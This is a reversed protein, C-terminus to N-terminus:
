TNVSIKKVASVSRMRETCAHQESNIKGKKLLNAIARPARKIWSVLTKEAPADPPLAEVPVIDPDNRIINHIQEVVPLPNAMNQRIVNVIIPIKQAPTASAIAAALQALMNMQKGQAVEDESPDRRKTRPPDLLVKKRTPLYKDRINKKLTAHSTMTQETVPTKNGDRTVIVGNIRNNTITEKAIPESIPYYIPHRYSSRRRFNNGGFYMDPNGSYDLQKNRNM